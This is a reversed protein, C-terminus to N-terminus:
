KWGSERRSKLHGENGNTERFTERVNERDTGSQNGIVVKGDITRDFFNGSSGNLNRKGGKM